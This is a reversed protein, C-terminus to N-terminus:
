NEKFDTDQTHKNIYNELGRERQKLALDRRNLEEMQKSIHPLVAYSVAHDVM